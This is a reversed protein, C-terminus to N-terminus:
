RRWAATAPAYPFRGTAARADLAPKPTSLAAKAAALSANVLFQAYRRGKDPRIDNRPM